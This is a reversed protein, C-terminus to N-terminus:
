ASLAISHKKIYNQYSERYSNTETRSVEDRHFSHCHRRTMIGGGPICKYKITHHFHLNSSGSCPGILQVNPCSKVRPKHLTAWGCGPTSWPCCTLSRKGVPEVLFTVEFNISGFSGTHSSFLVLWRLATLPSRSAPLLNFLIVCLVGLNLLASLDSGLKLGSSTCLILWNATILSLVIRLIAWRLPTM